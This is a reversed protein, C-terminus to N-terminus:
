EGRLVESPPVRAARGAPIASAILACTLLVIAVGALTTADRARVNFLMPEMAPALYLALVIGAVVGLFAQRVGDGM